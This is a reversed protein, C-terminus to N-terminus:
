QIILNIKLYKDDKFFNTYKEVMEKDTVFGKKKLSSIVNYINSISTEHKQAIEMRTSYDFILRNRKDVSLSSYENWYWLLDAYVELEKKRLDSFPKISSLFTVLILYKDRDTTPINLEM